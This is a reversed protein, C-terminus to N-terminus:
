RYVYSSKSVLHKLNRLYRILFGVADHVQSEQSTSTSTTGPIM